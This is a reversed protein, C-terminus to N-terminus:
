VPINLWWEGLWLLRMALVLRRPERLRAIRLVPGRRRMLGEATAVYRLDVTLAQLRCAEPMEGRAALWRLFARGDARPGGNVPLPTRTAFLDFRDAFQSGLAQPLGPWARAVAGRRKAALAMSVARVRDADFGPPPAARGALAFVLEAQMAALKTRAEASM